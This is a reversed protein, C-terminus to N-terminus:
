YGATSTYNLLTLTSADSLYPSNAKNLVLQLRTLQRCDVAFTPHWDCWTVKKM